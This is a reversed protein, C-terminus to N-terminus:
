AKATKPTKKARMPPLKLKGTEINGLGPKKLVYEIERLREIEARDIGCMDSMRKVDAPFDQMGVWKFPSQSLVTNPTEAARQATSHVVIYFKRGGTLLQGYISRERGATECVVAVEECVVDLRRNGDGIAWAISCFWLFDERSVPITLAIRFKKGSKDAAIVAKLFAKKAGAVSGCKNVDFHVVKLGRFGRRDPDGAIYRYDEYPDWLLLHDTECKGLYQVAKSKGSGTTGCYYGHLPKLNNDPNRAM